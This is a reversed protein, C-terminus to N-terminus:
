VGQIKYPEGQNLLCALSVPINKNRRQAVGGVICGHDGDGTIVPM